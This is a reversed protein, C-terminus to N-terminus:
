RSTKSFSVVLLVLELRHKLRHVCLTPCVLFIKQQSLKTQFKEGFIAIQGDYRSGKAVTDGEAVLTENQNSGINSPENAPLCETADYYLWQNLPVFKLTCAKLAEQAAFGGIM